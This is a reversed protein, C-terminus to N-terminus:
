NNKRDQKHIKVWEMPATQEEVICIQCFVKSM